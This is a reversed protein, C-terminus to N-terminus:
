ARRWKLLKQMRAQLDIHSKMWLNVKGTSCRYQARKFSLDLLEKGPAYGLIMLNSLVRSKAKVQLQDKTSIGWSGM